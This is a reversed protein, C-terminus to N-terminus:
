NTVERCYLRTRNAQSTHQIGVIDLTLSRVVARSGVETEPRYQNLELIYSFTVATGNDQQVENKANTPVASLQGMAEYQNVYTTVMEFDASQEFNVRQIVVSDVMAGHQNGARAPHAVSYGSLSM